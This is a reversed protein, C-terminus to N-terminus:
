KCRTEKIRITEQQVPNIEEQIQTTLAARQVITYTANAGQSYNKKKMTQVMIELLNNNPINKGWAVKCIQVAIGCTSTRWKRHFSANSTLWVGLCVYRIRTTNELVLSFCRFNQTQKVRNGDGM